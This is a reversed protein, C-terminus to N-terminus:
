APPPTSGETPSPVIWQEGLLTTALQSVFHVCGLLLANVHQQVGDTIKQNEMSVFAEIASQYKRFERGLVRDLDLDLTGGNHALLNRTKRVHKAFEYGTTSILHADRCLLLANNFDMTMVATSAPDTGLKLAIARKASAEITTALKMFTGWADGRLAHALFHQLECGTLKQFSEIRISIGDVRAM